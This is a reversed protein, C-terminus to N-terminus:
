GSNLGSRMEEFLILLGSLGAGVFIVSGFPVLFLAMPGSATGVWTCAAGIALCSAVIVGATRLVPSSRHCWCENELGMQQGCKPCAEGRPYPSPPTVM